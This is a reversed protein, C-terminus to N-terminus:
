RSRVAYPDGGKAPVVAPSIVDHGVAAVRFFGAETEADVDELVGLDDVEGGGVPHERHRAAEVGLEVGEQDGVGQPRHLGLGAERDQGVVAEGVARGHIGEEDGAAEAGALLDVVLPQM